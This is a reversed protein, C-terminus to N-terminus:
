GRRPIRLGSIQSRKSGFLGIPQWSGRLGESVPERYSFVSPVIALLAGVLMLSLVM